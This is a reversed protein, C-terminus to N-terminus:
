YQNKFSSNAADCDSRILWYSKRKEFKTDIEKRGMLNLCVGLPAFVFFYFIGLVIPSVIKGLQLGLAMWLKNFIYLRSSYFIATFLFVSALALFMYCVTFYEIYYSYLATVLFLAAFTLGFHRNSPLNEVTQNM